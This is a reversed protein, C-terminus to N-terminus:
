AIVDVRDGNEPDSENRRRATTAQSNNSNFSGDVRESKPATTKLKARADASVTAKDAIQQTKQLLQATPRSAVGERAVNALQTSQVASAAGVAVNQTIPSPM